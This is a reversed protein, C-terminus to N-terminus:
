SQKGEGASTKTENGELPNVWRRGTPSRSTASPTDFPSRGPGARPYPEPHPKPNCVENGCVTVDFYEPGISRLAVLSIDWLKESDVLTGDM